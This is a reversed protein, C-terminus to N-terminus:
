GRLTLFPMRLTIRVSATSKMHCDGISRTFRCLGMVTGHEELEADGMTIIAPLDPFEKRLRDRESPSTAVSHDESLGEVMMKGGRFKGAVARSDGLNGVTVESKKEGYEVAPCAAPTLLQAPQPSNRPRHAGYAAVACTGCCMLVADEKEEATAIYREDAAQLGEAFAVM